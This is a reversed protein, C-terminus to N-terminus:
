FEMRGSILTGIYTWQLPHLISIFIIKDYHVRIQVYIWILNTRGKVITCVVDQLYYDEVITKIKLCIIGTYFKRM